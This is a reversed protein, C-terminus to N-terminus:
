RPSPAFRINGIWVWRFAGHVVDRMQALDQGFRLNTEAVLAIHEAKGGTLPTTGCAQAKIWEVGTRTKASDAVPWCCGPKGITRSPRANIPTRTFLELRLAHPGNPATVHARVKAYRAEHEIGDKIEQNIHEAWLHARSVEDQAAAFDPRYESM